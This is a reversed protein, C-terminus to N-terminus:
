PSTRFQEPTSQTHKKFYKYFNTTEEFGSKYAIEKISLPTNLLLRKIQKICIEDIFEKATKNVISKSITNLTKTSIGMMQAYDKVKNTKKAHQEIMKQFEIFENLYKKDPFLTKKGAKLRFLKSILIHLESRIIELSYNDNVEFYENRIRDILTFIEKKEKTNLQIKPSGLMENFLQLTKLGELQELYSSLFEDTFLLISGQLNSIFFKHLQDKRVTLITGETCKYDTFDITHFGNGEEILMIIYFEVLHIEDIAHDLNKRQPLEEIRIFDFAAKPNQQNEFAVHKISEKM